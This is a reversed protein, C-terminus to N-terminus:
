RGCQKEARKVQAIAQSPTDESKSIALLKAKAAPPCAPGLAGLAQAAAAVIEPFASDDLAAMLVQAAGPADLRASSAAAIQALALAEASELAAGRWKAFRGVLIKGLERDGLAVALDVAQTRVELPAKSDDWTRALLDAVGAARCQVLAILSDRRVDVSADKRVADALATAPGIRQCRSSLTTAARRRVEPWRDSSLASIIVRDIGDPAGSSHWPSAPDATAGALASLVALRVGPDPDAVHGLVLGLAETRPATGIARIAVQRLASSEAGAPLARLLREIEAIAAADGVTAIGDIVRYRREYDTAGPLALRLAELAAGREAPNARARRTVARWLDGAATARSQATARDILADMPASSVRDIVARRLERQGKGALDVLLPLETPGVSIRKVAAVRAEMELSAKGALEALETSMGLEGLADIVAILEQDRVWKEGAARALTPGTAPDKIKVLARVLRARAAADQTRTIEADLAQAGIAGRRALAQAASNAGDGGEAVAKVLMADGGGAREGEAFIELEAIATQGGPPGYTAEIVVTVCGGIAEPLDAVYASGAPDSAADPLDVHWAGQASVVGLRKPRNAPKPGAVIRLQRAKAATVKSEFTFFQGTGDSSLEERWATDPRADDLETPTGLGGADGTGPQHSAVRARFLVSPPAPTADLKATVTTATAPVGTPIKSVRKFQTGDFKDAFLYAPKGDCRRLGARSQYRYVENDNVDIDVAYDADLGVGGLPFRAAEKWTAGARTLVIGQRASPPGLDVVVIPKGDRRGVFLKARSADPAIKITGALKGAITVVGDPGLEVAELTGDGDLDATTAAVPAAHARGAVLLTAAVGLRRM